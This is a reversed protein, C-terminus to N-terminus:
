IEHIIQDRLSELAQASHGLMKVVIGRRDLTTAAALITPHATDLIARIQEVAAGTHILLMTATHSFGEFHGIGSLGSADPRLVTNERYLLREGLLV